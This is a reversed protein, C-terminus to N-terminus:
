TRSAATADHEGKTSVRNNWGSYLKRAQVRNKIGLIKYLASLHQKITSESLFLRRAIQANSEGEAVLELIELQRPTLASLDAQSREEMLHSLLERPLIVEGESAVLLARVIQEPPMEAHIFGSAGAKLAGRVLRPDVSLGFVVVPANPAMARLHEVESAVDQASSCYLIILSASGDLPPEHGQQVRAAYAKLTHELGLSLTQWPCKIWVLGLPEPQEPESDALLRAVPPDTELKAPEPGAPPLITTTGKVGGHFLETQTVM